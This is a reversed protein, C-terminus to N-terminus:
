ESVVDSYMEFIGRYFDPVTHRTVDGNGDEEILICILGNKTGIKLVGRAVFDDRQCGVVTM